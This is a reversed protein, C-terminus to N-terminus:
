DRKERLFIDGDQFRVYCTKRHRQDHFKVTQNKIERPEYRGCYKFDSTLIELKALDIIPFERRQLNRAKIKIAM